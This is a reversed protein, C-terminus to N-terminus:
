EGQLEYWLSNKDDSDVYVTQNADPQKEKVLNAINIGEFWCFVWQIGIKM